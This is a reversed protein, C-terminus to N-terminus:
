SENLDVFKGLMDIMSPPWARKDKLWGKSKYLCESDASNACVGAWQAQAQQQRGDHAYLAALAAQADVAAHGEEKAVQM